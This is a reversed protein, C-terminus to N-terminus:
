PVPAEGTSTAGAPPTAGAAPGPGPDDLGDPRFTSLPLWSRTTDSQLAARVEAPAHDAWAYKGAPWELHGAHLVLARRGAVWAYVRQKTPHRTLVPDPLATVVDVAVERDRPSWTPYLALADSLSLQPGRTPM